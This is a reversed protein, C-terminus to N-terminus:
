VVVAFVVIYGEPNSAQGESTRGYIRQETGIKLVVPDEIAKRAFAALFQAQTVQVTQVM